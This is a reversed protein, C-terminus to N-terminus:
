SILVEKILDNIYDMPADDLIIVDYYKKYKELNAEVNENLFGISILNEYDFGEIMDVDELNDGILIVNKRNKIREFVPYDKVTLEKKSLSHIIPEKVALLNGDDDWEFTNSIIHVNDSLSNIKELLMYITEGGLGSSSMIVVPINKTKLIGFFEGMGHRFLISGSEAAQALHSKNLGAKILLDFHAMWWEHMVAKKEEYSIDPDIEIPRYKNYLEQAKVSYSKSLYENDRLISIVSPFIKGNVYTKTLTKDFDTLIHLAGAGAEKILQKKKALEEPNVIIINENM